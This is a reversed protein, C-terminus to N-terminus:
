KIATVAYAAGVQFADKPSDPQAQCWLVRALFGDYIEAGITDTSFHETMIYIECGRQLPAATVFGMGGKSFNCLRADVFHDSGRLAFVIPAVYEIRESKRRDTRGAM